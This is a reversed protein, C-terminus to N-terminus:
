FQHKKGHRENRFVVNAKGIEKNSVIDFFKNNQHGIFRVTYKQMIAKEGLTKNGQIIVKLLQFEYLIGYQTMYFYVTWNRLKM